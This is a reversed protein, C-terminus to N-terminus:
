KQQRDEESPQVKALVYISQMFRLNWCLSIVQCLMFCSSMLQMLTISVMGVPNCEHLVQGGLHESASWSIWYKLKRVSKTPGDAAEVFCALSVCHFVLLWSHVVGAFYRCYVKAWFVKKWFKKNRTCDGLETRWLSHRGSWAHQSHRRYAESIRPMM